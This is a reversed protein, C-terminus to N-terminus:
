EDALLEDWTEVDLLRETLAELRELSGISQLAALTAESPVGFRKNGQRLLVRRVEEDRGETKGENLIKMYTISERMATIGEFAQTITEDDYRLGMLVYTLTMIRNVRESPLEQMAKAEVRRIAQRLNKGVDKTLPALPLLSVGSTLTEEVTREWIRVVRYTFELTVTGVPFEHTVKGTMADGDAELRLLVLVSVVPLGHRRRLLVNYQLMREGMERDYTTQVEIHLIYPIPADVRIIKDAELLVTSLDADVVVAPNRPMGALLLWDEPQMEILEKLTADFQKSM